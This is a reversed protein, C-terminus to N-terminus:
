AFMSRRCAMPADGETGTAIVDGPGDGERAFVFYRHRGHHGTPAVLLIRENTERVLVDGTRCWPATDDPIEPDCRTAM